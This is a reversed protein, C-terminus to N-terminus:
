SSPQQNVCYHKQGTNQLHKTWIKAPVGIDSLNIL